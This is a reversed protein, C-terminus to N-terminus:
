CVGYTQSGHASLHCRHSTEDAFFHLVADMESHPLYSAKKYQLYFILIAFILSDLFYPFIPFFTQIKDRKFTLISLTKMLSIRTKFSLAIQPPSSINTRIREHLFDTPPFPPFLLKDNTLVFLFMFLLCFHM